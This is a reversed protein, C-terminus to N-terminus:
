SLPLVFLNYKKFFVGDPVTWKLQAKLSGQHFYPTGDVVELEEVRVIDGYLGYVQEERGAVTMSWDVQYLSM